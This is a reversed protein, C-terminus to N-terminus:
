ASAKLRAVQKQDGPGRMVRASLAMDESSKGTYASWRGTAADILVAHLNIRTRQSEDPM